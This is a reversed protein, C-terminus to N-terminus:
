YICGHKRKPLCEVKWQPLPAYLLCVVSLCQGAMHVSGCLCRYCRHPDHGDLRETTVGESLLAAAATEEQTSQIHECNHGFLYKELKTVHNGDREGDM